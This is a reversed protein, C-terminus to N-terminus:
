PLILSSDGYSLFRFDNGLAYDYMEKWNKGAFAAVLLLLTSGPQHFNTILGRVVRFRYGPVIILSTRAELIGSPHSNIYSKVADFSDAMSIERHPRYPDWQGVVPGIAPNFRGEIMSVGIWYISELTRLTTTGVAIIRRESLLDLTEATAYIHETHMEHDTIELAKVPKFTGASVHLTISSKEIGKEALKLFVEDSFHLGATPAAVSGDTDCYITQYRTKDIEEDKRRLYPPIPINGASNLIDCFQFNKDSWNFEVVWSEGSKEIREASIILENGDLIVSTFVKGSKWKKLNGILCKWRVPGNSAFNRAFDIPLHPELCFVEVVAGSEKKMIMRARVVRSNNFVLMDGENLHDPLNQFIDESLIGGRNLLLRSKDRMALPYRAIKEDPLLYKYDDLLIPQM